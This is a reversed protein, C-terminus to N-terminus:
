CKRIRGILWGYNPDSHEVKMFEIDINKFGTEILNKELEEQTFSVTTHHHYIDLDNINVDFDGVSCKAFVNFFFIGSDKLLAYADKFYQLTQRKPLHQFVTISYIVDFKKPEFIKTLETEAYLFVKKEERFFYKARNIASESIDTGYIEKVKDYLNHIWNGQGCGIELVIDNNTIKYIPYLFKVFFGPENKGIPYAKDTTRKTYGLLENEYIQEWKEKWETDKPNM